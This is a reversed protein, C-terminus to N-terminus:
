GNLRELASPGAKFRLATRAPVDIVAGTAPNKAQRAKREVASFRGFGSIATDRGQAAEDIIAAFVEKVATDAAARTLGAAGAVRAVLESQKM